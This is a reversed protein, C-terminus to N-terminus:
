VPPQDPTDVPPIEEGPVPNEKSAALEELKAINAEAKALSEDSVQGEQAEKIFLKFDDAIGTTVTDMRTLITDFREQKTMIKDTKSILLNLKSVIENLRTAVEPQEPTTVNVNAIHFHLHVNM